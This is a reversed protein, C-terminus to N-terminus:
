KVEIVGTTWEEWDSDNNNDGLWKLANMGIRYKGPLVRLSFPLKVNFITPYYTGDWTVFNAAYDPSYRAAFTLDTFAYGIKRGNENFLPASLERTPNAFSLVITPRSIGDKRDYVLTDNPGFVPLNNVTTGNTLFPTGYGYVPLERQNGVIGIYPITIDKQNQQSKLQIFGGYMIHDAPNTGPPMVTVTIEASKGPSLKINKKSFRLKATDKGYNAPAAFEYSKTDKYPIVSVSVNNLLQYSVISDGDNNITFTHTKQMNATDNFSIAGPTVHVQQKIADYVQVLGAGQKFPSDIDAEGNKLAASFAYNQFHELIYAPTTKEENNKLSKLYLAVSGSVYPTAMSTGSMMGWSGLQHPLTSYVNGGIGAINPAVDIEYSAGISSFSSVSNGTSAPRVSPEKAFALSTKGKKISVLLEAGIKQTVGIVPIVVGPTSPAFSSEDDTNDYVVVGTAGARHLNNAKVTFTCTGRQVLALKGKIDNPINAPECADSSSGVKSDGAVVEGNAIQGVSPSSDAYEYVKSSGSIEFTKVLNYNNDFSAVSFAGHGVSPVSITFAGYQGDNGAAVIVPVGKDTIREAVVAMPSGPWGNMSGLSMSIIDVGTDYADLMADMIVDDASAGVCSFVRWMGLTADPAVGTFNSVDSKGAVIGSVHTGHGVSGTNADCSDMPDDDPEPVSSTLGYNDGVMDKGYRVKYGEGFGGGLAPHMYDIGSDLIGVIIGEGTNKLEKHVRDVQTQAHPILKGIDIGNSAVTVEPNPRKIDRVPYVKTVLGSEAVAKFIENFLSDQDTSMSSVVNNVDDTHGNGDNKKSNNKSGISITVGKLLAHNFLRGM